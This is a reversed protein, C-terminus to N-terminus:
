RRGPRGIAEDHASYVVGMAGRGIRDIVRYRGIRAPMAGTRRTLCSADDADAYRVLLATVNDRSGRELAATVVSGAIADCTATPRCCRVLAGADVVNHVGDTCLLLMEGDALEREAVISRPSERAGLVNTLVHRM